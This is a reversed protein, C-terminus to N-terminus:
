VVYYDQLQQQWVLVWHGNQKKCNNQLEVVDNSVQNSLHIDSLRQPCVLTQGFKIYNKPKQSPISSLWNGM